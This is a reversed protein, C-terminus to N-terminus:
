LFKRKDYIRAPNIVRDSRSKTNLSMLPPRRTDNRQSQFNGCAYLSHLIELVANVGKAASTIKSIM